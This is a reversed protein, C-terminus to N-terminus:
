WEAKTDAQDTTRDQIVVELGVLACLALLREVTLNGPSSEIESLRNQSLPLKAAL